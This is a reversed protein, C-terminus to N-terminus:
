GRFLGLVWKVSLQTPGLSPRPLQPFDRGWRSEIETGDLGYSTAIDEVSGPGCILSYPIIIRYWHCLVTKKKHLPHPPRLALLVSLNSSLIRRLASILEATASCKSFQHISSIPAYAYVRLNFFVIFQHLVMKLDTYANQQPASTTPTTVANDAPPGPPLIKMEEGIPGSRTQSGAMRRKLVYHPSKGWPYLAWPMFSVVARKHRSLRSQLWVEM